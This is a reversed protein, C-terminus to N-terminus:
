WSILRMSSKETKGDVREVRYVVGVDVSYGRRVLENYIANEMLHADEVERFNVRANRLGLDVAYYKSPYDLHKRGRVDYREARSFLFSDEFYGLYKQLTRNTTKVHM